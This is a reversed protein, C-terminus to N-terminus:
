FTSIKRPKVTVILDFAILGGSGALLHSLQNGFMPSAV